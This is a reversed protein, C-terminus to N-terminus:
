LCSLASHCVRNRRLYKIVEAEDNLIQLVRRMSPREISSPNACSLGVLLLKKMQDENYEGNLRKDAAVIIKGESHLSWVWDVLNVPNKGQREIPRRGCAVELLVVGFSFVDTKETAKDYQLYDPALYGMTGATLTSIPSKDHEMPRALGFDGLRASFNQDLMINSTKIDRHIVQQSAIGVAINYRRSWNLLIEDKAERYLLSDLSGNSMFEYVLLLEGKDTCWGQLQVLNKHRLCAIISLEALFESKGEHTQKRRKVAFTMRSEPFVAKFVTGFAGHGVIRSSHFGTKALKLESYGFQRPNKFLELKLSKDPKKEKFKKVFTCGFVVLGICFLSPGAIALGLVLKMRNNKSIILISSRPRRVPYFGSTEFNWDTIMHIETRGETSALFGVFMFEKFYVSLDIEVVLIPNEPKFKKYSMWVNMMKQDNKYDIWVTILNGRKLDIGKSVFDETRISILSDIDLGVHTDTTDNFISDLRTDFEIAIFTNPASLQSSSVLGLYRGPCDITLNDTSIFFTLGDGFSGPNINTILFSFRTSFSASIESKPDFFNIPSNFLVSGSSSSPVGLEQTLGLIGNRPYSDGLLTLNQFSFSSFNFSVNESSFLSFGLFIFSLFFLSLLNRSSSNM